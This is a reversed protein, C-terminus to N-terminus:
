KNKIKIIVRTSGPISQVASVVVIVIVITITIAVVVVGIVGVVVFM